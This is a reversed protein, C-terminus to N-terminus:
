YRSSANSKTIWSASTTTFHVHWRPRKALRERGAVGDCYCDLPVLVAYSTTGWALLLRIPFVVPRLFSAAM